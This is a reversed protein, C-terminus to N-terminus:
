RHRQHSIRQLPRGPGLSPEQAQDAKSPTLSRFFTCIDFELLNRPGTASNFSVSDEGSNRASRAYTVLM